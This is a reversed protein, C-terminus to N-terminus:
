ERTKRKLDHIKKQLIKVQKLDGAQRAKEKSERLTVIKNKIDSTPLKQTEIDRPIEHQDFLIDLLEQKKMGHVGSINEIKLAEERLKPVTMKLLTEKDM